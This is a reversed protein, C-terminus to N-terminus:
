RSNEFIRQRQFRLADKSPVKRSCAAPDFRLSNSAIHSSPLQYTSSTSPPVQHVHLAQLAQPPQHPSQPPRASTPPPPPPATQPRPSASPPCPTRKRPRPSRGGM